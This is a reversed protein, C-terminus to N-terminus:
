LYSSQCARVVYPLANAVSATIPLVQGDALRIMHSRGPDGWVYSLAEYQPAHELEVHIISYYTSCQIEPSVTNEQTPVAPSQPPSWNSPQKDIRLLRFENRKTLRIYNYVSPCSDLELPTIELVSPITSNCEMAIVTDVHTM